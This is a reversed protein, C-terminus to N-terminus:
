ARGGKKVLGSIQPADGFGFETEKRTAMEKLKFKKAKVENEGLVILFAIGRKELYEFNKKLNRQMLDVEVGLGTKRLASALKVGPINAEGSLIIIFIDANPGIVLTDELYDYLRDVGFSFGVAPNEQGGYLSILNDYRGGGAVSPGGKISVEMVMGTYYELGRTLSLDFEVETYGSEGSLELLEELEKLSESGKLYDKVQAFSNAEIQRLIRTDIGKQKLEKGVEKAGIKGLKDLSRFADRVQEKRVGMKLALEEFVKRSNVKVSFEFGLGRMVEVAVQIIEFDALVYKAGVIDIDAQTFERYRKAQPRDYRYVTSICYRRFPKQLMPNSAAVRGLPVTLDYRLGIEREGKDKFYYIEGKIAEGGSGKAALLAFDEVVPTQLPEYGYKEFIARCLDEIFQKKKAQAPLFDRMGKVNQYAM